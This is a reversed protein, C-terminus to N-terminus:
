RAPARRRGWCCRVTPCPNPFSLAYQTPVPLTAYPTASLNVQAATHAHRRAAAHVGAARQGGRNVQYYTGFLTDFGNNEMMIVIINQIPFPGPHRDPPVQGAPTPQAEMLLLSLAAAALLLGIQWLLTPARVTAQSGRETSQM